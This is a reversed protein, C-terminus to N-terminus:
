RHLIQRSSTGNLPFINDTNHNEHFVLCNTMEHWVMFFISHTYFQTMSSVCRANMKGYTEKRDNIWCFRQNIFVLSKHLVRSVSALPFLLHVSSVEKLLFGRFFTMSMCYTHNGISSPFFYCFLPIRNLWRSTGDVLILTPKRTMSIPSM